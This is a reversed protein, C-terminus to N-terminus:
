RFLFGHGDGVDSSGVIQGRDNIGFADTFDSERPGTTRFAGGIDVFGHEAGNSDAYFGTIVGRDNIGSAWIGRV